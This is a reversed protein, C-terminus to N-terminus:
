AGPGTIARGQSRSARVAQGTLGPNSSQAACTITASSCGRLTKSGRRGSSRRVRRSGSGCRRSSRTLTPSPCPKPVLALTQLLTLTPDPSVQEQRHLLKGETGLAQQEREQRAREVETAELGDGQVKVKQAETYDGQKALTM